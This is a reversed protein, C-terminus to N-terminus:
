VIREIIEKVCSTLQNFKEKALILQQTYEKIYDDTDYEPIKFEQLLICYTNMAKAM